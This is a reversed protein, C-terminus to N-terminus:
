RLLGVLELVRISFGMLLLIGAQSMHLDYNLSMSRSDFRGSLHHQMPGVGPM